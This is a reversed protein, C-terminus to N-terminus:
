KGERMMKLQRYKERYKEALASQKNELGIARGDIFVRTVRSTTDLCSGDSVFLTAMKGKELSGVRDAVGLIEAASLTMARIADKEDLGHAVAIAANYPLNREHATDDATALTWVIGAEQLRVPLTYADDYAADDRRPFNHTGTVIVGVNHKRLLEACLPADRGGVVVCKLGRRSAWSVAATIQDFDTASILVPRQGAEPKWEGGAGAEPKKSPMVGRLGEYRIDTPFSADAAKASAYAQALDFYESLRELSKTINKQQEEESTDMWWATVTRMMPWEIVLGADMQLALDNNTWGDMRIVSGRGPVLGGTPFTGCLLVGNSRTVPLLTSDPNVAVGAVVEPAFDGLENMDISARVAQIETLGVQSWAGILGPYVHGGKANIFGQAEADKVPISAPDGSAIETIVGRDFTIYGQEIVGGSGGVPHIRANWITVASEQPGPRSGLDQAMAGAGAVIAVLAGAALRGLGRVLHTHTLM